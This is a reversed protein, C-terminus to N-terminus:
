CSKGIEEFSSTNNLMTELNRLDGKLFDNIFESKVETVPEDKKEGLEAVKINKMEQGGVFQDLDSITMETEEVAKEPPPPTSDLNQGSLIQSPMGKILSPLQLLVTNTEGQLAIKYQALCIEDYSNVFYKVRNALLQFIQYPIIIKTFDSEGGKIMLKVILLEDQSTTFEMIFQITKNQKVIQSKESFLRESNEFAYKFSQLLDSANIINLNYSKQFQNSISIGIMPPNFFKYDKTSTSISVRLYGDTEYIDDKYSILTQSVWKTDEEYM